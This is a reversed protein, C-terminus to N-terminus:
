LRILRIYYGYDSNAHPVFSLPTYNMFNDVFDVSNM